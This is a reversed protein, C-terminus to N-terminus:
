IFELRTAGNQPNIAYDMDLMASLTIEYTLNKNYSLEIEISLTPKDGNFGINFISESQYNAGIGDTTTKSVIIYDLEKVIATCNASTTEESEM